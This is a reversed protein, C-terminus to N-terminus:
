AVLGITFTEGLDSLELTTRNGVFNGGAGALLRKHPDSVRTDLFTPNTITVAAASGTLDFTAPHEAGSGTMTATTITGGSRLSFTADPYVLVTTPVGSVQTWTGGKLNVTTVAADARVTGGRNVGTAVIAGSGIFLAASEADAGFSGEIQGYVGNTVTGVRVGEGPAYALGLSGSINYVTHGAGAGTGSTFRIPPGSSDTTVGSEGVNVTLTTGATSAVHVRVLEPAAFDPDGIKVDACAAFALAKDRYEVYGGEGDTTRDPLGVVRSYIRLAAPTVGTFSLGYRCPGSDAPFIITETNAPLTGLSWNRAEDAHEPGSSAVTQAYTLAATAGGNNDTTITHPVGPDAAVPTLFADGATYNWTVERFETVAFEDILEKLAAAAEALTTVASTDITLRVRKRNIIVEYWDANTLTGTFTLTGEQAVPQADGRWVNDAM